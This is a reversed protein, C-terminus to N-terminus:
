FLEELEKKIEKNDIKKVIEELKKSKKYLKLKEEYFKLKDVTINIQKYIANRSINYNDALEGLSLNNFYYNEFYEKQKDTLLDGYIDYLENLYVVEELM